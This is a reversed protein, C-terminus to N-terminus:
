LRKQLSLPSLLSNIVSTVLTKYYSKLIIPEGLTSHEFTEVVFKLRCFFFSYTDDNPIYMSKNAMTM